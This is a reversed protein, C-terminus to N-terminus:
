YNYDDGDSDSDLLMRKNFEEMEEEIKLNELRMKEIEEKYNNYPSLDGSLENENDRFNNWNNIMKNVNNFYNKNDKIKEIQELKKIQEKTKESDTIVIKCNENKEIISWGAKIKNLTDLIKEEEDKEFIQVFSKKVEQKEIVQSTKTKENVLSPFEENMTKIKPINKLNNINNRRHPAIYSGM